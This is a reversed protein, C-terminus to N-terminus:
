FNNGWHVWKEVSGPCCSNHLNYIQDGSFIAWALPKNFLVSRRIMSVACRVVQILSYAAAMGNAIVLFVLAKMDTCKARKQLSFFVKVQSDSWVLAAALVGLACILLRLALEAVKLRRDVAALNNSGHYVPTVAVGAAGLCSM